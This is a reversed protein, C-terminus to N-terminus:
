VGFIVDVDNVVIGVLVFFVVDFDVNDVGVGVMGEEYM